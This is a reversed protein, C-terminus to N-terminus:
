IEPGAINGVENGGELSSVPVALTTYLRSGWPLIHTQEVNEEEEIRWKKCTIYRKIDMNKRAKKSPKKDEKLVKRKNPSEVITMPKDVKDKQGKNESELGAEVRRKKQIPQGREMRRNAAGRKKAKEKKRIAM